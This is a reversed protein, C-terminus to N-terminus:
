AETYNRAVNEAEELVRLINKGMIKLIQDRSYGRNLLGQIVFPYGSVDELQKPLKSVGDYDGGVGVHDIGAIRVIHDIHDLVHAVTGAEMPNQRKWENRAQERQKENPFKERFGREIDFMDRMVRASEPVVFGSFFNVMVVGGNASVGRLVDDPINRPHDAIAAASSHSAIIPATSVRLADRMTEVSVHSIDVLMGLRNMERVIEEGLESLGSHRSTDTASDAWDVTESHTLTLYRVGLEFYMRLVSVSNDIAHGGEIGILSAIKGSKRIRYVDEATRAIEFTRPYRAAMRHILDIQELCVAAANGTKIYDVPVYAAWFQAGVGGKRLRPIDTHFLPASANIDVTEFSSDAKKRMAWPLDNHGDFVPALDRIALAEQTLVIPASENDSQEKEGQTTDTTLRLISPSNSTRVAVQSWLGVTLTFTIGLITLPLRRM